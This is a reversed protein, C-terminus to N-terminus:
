SVIESTSTAAHASATTTTAAVPAFRLSLAGLTILWGFLISGFALALRLGLVIIEIWSNNIPTRTTLLFYPMVGFALLGIAYVGVAHPSFADAFVRPLKKFSPALGIHAVAIWLRIAVLPLALAFILYWLATLFIRKWAIGSVGDTVAGPDIKAFLYIFLIGLLAVPLTVIALRWFGRLAGRLLQGTSNTLVAFSVGMMQIVFFLALAAAAMALTLLLQVATAERTSVFLYLAVLLLNFLLVFAVIARWNSFLRRAATVLDKM